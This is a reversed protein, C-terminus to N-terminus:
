FRCLEPSFDLPRHTVRHLFGNTKVIRRVALSPRAAKPKVLWPEKWTLGKALKIHKNGARLDTFLKKLTNSRM